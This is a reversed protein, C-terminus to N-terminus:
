CLEKNLLSYSNMYTRMADPKLQSSFWDNLKKKFEEFNKFEFEFFVNDNHQFPYYEMQFNDTSKTYVFKLYGHHSYYSSKDKEYSVNEPQVYRLIKNLMITFKDDLLEEIKKNKDGEKLCYNYHYKFTSILHQRYVGSFNFETKDTKVLGDKVYYFIVRNRDFNIEFNIYTDDKKTRATYYTNGDKTKYEGKYSDCELSRKVEDFIEQYINKQVKNPGHELIQITKPNFVILQQPENENVVGKNDIIGDFGLKGFFSNWKVQPLTKLYDLDGKITKGNDTTFYDDRESPKFNLMDLVNWLKKDFRQNSKGFDGININYFLDILGAKKFFGKIDEYDIKNINLFNRTNIKCIFYYKMSFGYQFSSTDESFVFNTPYFYIGFPDYHGKKPNIGLKDIDTFHIYTNRQGQYKKLSLFSTYSEEPTILDEFLQFNTIM